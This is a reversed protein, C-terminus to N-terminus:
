LMQKHRMYVIKSNRSFSNLTETTSDSPYPHHMVESDNIYIACHSLAKVVGNDSLIIDHKKPTPVEKFGRAEFIKVFERNSRRNYGWFEERKPWENPEIQRIQHIVDPISINLNRGYYDRVLTICDVENTIFERGLLPLEFFVNPVYIEFDDKDVSYVVCPINRKHAYYKDTMSFELSVPHSHYFSHVKNLNEVESFNIQFAEEPFPSTNKCKIVNGDSDIVGCCENPADELAHQKILNKQIINLM